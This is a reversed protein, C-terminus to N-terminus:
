PLLSAEVYLVEGGAETWALGTAVGPPLDKRARDPFMHEVGLLETLDKPLVTVLEKSGEAFRVAVKRAVRGIAKEMQRVGAERTYGSILQTLTEDPLILQLATLGVQALQRPVIYRRAIE